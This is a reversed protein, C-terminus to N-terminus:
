KNTEAEKADDKTEMEAGDTTTDDKNKSCCCCCKGFCRKTKNWLRRRWGTIGGFATQLEQKMEANEISEGNDISYMMVISNISAEIIAMPIMMLSTSVWAVMVSLPLALDWPIGFMIFGAGFCVTSSVITCVIYGVNQIDSIMASALIGSMDETLCNAAHKAAKMYPLNFVSVFVHAYSNLMDLVPAFKDEFCCMICSKCCDSCCAECCNPDRKEEGKSHLYSVVRQLAAIIGGVCSSGLSTTFAQIFATKVVSEKQGDYWRAFVNCLATHSISRISDFAVFVLFIQVISYWHITTEEDSDIDVFQSVEGMDILAALAMVAFICELIVFLAGMLFIGAHQKIPEFSWKVVIAAYEREEKSSRIKYFIIKGILEVAVLAGTIGTVFHYDCLGFNCAAGIVSFIIGAWMNIKIAKIGGFRIFSM